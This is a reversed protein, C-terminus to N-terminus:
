DKYFYENSGIMKKYFNEKEKIGCKNKFLVDDEINVWESFNQYNVRCGGGCIYKIECKSCKEVHMVSTKERIKESIKKLIKIPTTKINYDSKLESIRNCWFVGGDPAITIGGYGCNSLKNTEAYNVVFNECFYEPYLENILNRLKQKYEKNEEVSPKINRGPILELSLDIHVNPNEKRFPGVFTRFHKIFEDLGEYLPTVALSINTGLKSFLKITKIAKSFGYMKRVKFYSEDDYGDVSVQIQDIYLHTANILEETWLLGNSLVAVTLGISKAYKLVEIWDKYLLIEGGTFTVSKGNSNYFDFLVKKWMDVPLESIDWEGSYMYCHECRLNCRNTLYIYLNFERNDYAEPNEFNKAEIQTLVGVVLEEDFVNLAEQISKNEGLFQFVRYEEDSYVLWNCGETYILLNKDTYKICSIEKPFHYIKDLGIEKDSMQIRLEKKYLLIGIMSFLIM